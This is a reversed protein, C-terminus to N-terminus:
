KLNSFLFSSFNIKSKMIKLFIQNINDASITTSDDPISWYTTFSQGDYRNLGNQTGFWIFGKSDECITRISNNSLGQDITLYKFKYQNQPGSYVQANAFLLFTPIFLLFFSICKM